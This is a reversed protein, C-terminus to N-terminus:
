SLLVLCDVGSSYGLGNMNQFFNPFILIGSRDIRPVFPVESFLAITLSYLLLCMFFWCFTFDLAKLHMRDKILTFLASNELSGVGLLRQLCRPLLSQSVSCGSTANFVVIENPVLSFLSWNRPWTIPASWQVNGSGCPPISSGKSRNSWPPKHIDCFLM